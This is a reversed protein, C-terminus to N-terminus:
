SKTSPSIPATDESEGTYTGTNAPTQSNIIQLDTNASATIETEAGGYVVIKLMGTPVTGRLHVIFTDTSDLEIDCQCSTYNYYTSPSEKLAAFYTNVLLNRTGLNHTFIYDLGNNTATVAINCYLVRVVAASVKDNGTGEGSFSISGQGDGLIRIRNSSGSSQVNVEAYNGTFTDLSEDGATYIKFIGAIEQPTGSTTSLVVWTEGNHYKLNGGEYKIAGATPTVKDNAGIVANKLVASDVTNDNLNLNNLFDM